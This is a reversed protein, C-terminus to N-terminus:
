CFELALNGRSVQKWNNGGMVTQVPSNRDTRTGDGLCGGYNFGWVWLTGDTKIASTHGFGASVEKWNNGSSVTQVPSSKNSIFAGDGLQGLVSCGWGWLTGDTKIAQVHYNGAAVQKWNTGSSVTQVPSSRNITSNNGLSGAGAAGWNWLTGDTKIAVTHCAGASVQKWNTGSSVTQVPSSRAAISDNGLLGNSGTGWLWLTGDTKIAATHNIFVSVQKWNTGSSITQVPSSRPTLAINIGLGGNANEGWLWLTGDTKIAAAFNSGRSVQKWNTGSSITQVPSSKNITTNDGLHGAFGRGWLWLTGDTKIGSSYSVQKWNTGASVTQVPSSRSISTNDGLNQTGWGWLRGGVYRDIIESETVFIDTLKESTSLFTL